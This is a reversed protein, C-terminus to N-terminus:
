EAPLVPRIGSSFRSGSLEAKWWLMTWALGFAWGGFVDTVYHMGLYIRSFGVLLVLGLAGAYLLFRSRKLGLPSVALLALAPFAVAAKLSHGSPFSGSRVLRGERDVADPPRPAAVLRKAGETALGAGVFAVLVLVATRLRRAWLAVVILFVGIVAFSVDSGLETAYSLIRGLWPNNQRHHQFFVFTGHDLADLFM